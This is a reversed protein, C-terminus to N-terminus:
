PNATVTAVTVRKESGGQDDAKMAIKRKVDKEEENENGIVVHQREM